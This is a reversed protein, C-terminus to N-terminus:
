LIVVKVHKRELSALIVPVSHTVTIRKRPLVATLELKTNTM